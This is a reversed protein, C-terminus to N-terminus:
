IMSSKLFFLNGSPIVTLTVPSVESLDLTCNCSKILVTIKPNMKTTKTRINKIPNVLAKKTPRATGREQRTANRTIGTNSM